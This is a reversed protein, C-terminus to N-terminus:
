IPFRHRNGTSPERLTINCTSKRSALNYKLLKAFADALVSENGTTFSELTGGHGPQRALKHQILLRQLQRAVAEGTDVITVPRETTAQISAEILAQVFPYHHLGAGAHRRGARDAARRLARDHRPRPRTWRAKTSKTRWGSAPKRCSACTPRPASKHACQEFKQSSLTRATALVGVIGSQTLAAAPKLGPEVGVLPLDPHIERLGKIAAATATNCALV